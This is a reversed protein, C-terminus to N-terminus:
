FYNIACNCTVVWNKLKRQLFDKHTFLLFFPEEKCNKVKVKVKVKYRSSMASSMCCFDFSGSWEVGFRSSSRCKCSCKACKKIYLSFVEVSGLFMSPIKRNLLVDLAPLETTDQTPPFPQLGLWFAMFQCCGKTLVRQRVFPVPVATSAMSPCIYFGLFLLLAESWIDSNCWFALTLPTFLVHCVPICVTITCFGLLEKTWPGGRGGAQPVWSSSNDHQVM